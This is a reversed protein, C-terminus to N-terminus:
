ATASPAPRSARRVLIAQRLALVVAASSWALAAAFLISAFPLAFAPVGLAAGIVGAPRTGASMLTVIVILGWALGAGVAAERPGSDRGDLAAFLFGAFLPGVWGFVVTALIVATVLLGLRGLRASREM